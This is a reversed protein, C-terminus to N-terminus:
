IEGILIDGDSCIVRQAKSRLFCMSKGLFKSIFEQKTGEYHIEGDNLCLANKGIFKVSKSIILTKISCYAFANDRIEEIGDRVYISLNKDVGEYLYNEPVYNIFDLPNCSFCSHEHMLYLTLARVTQNNGNRNAADYAKDFANNNVYDMIENCSDWRSLEDYYQKNKQM